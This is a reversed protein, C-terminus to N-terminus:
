RRQFRFLGRSTIIKEMSTKSFRFILMTMIAWILIITMIMIIIAIDKHLPTYRRKAINITKWLWSITGLPSYAVIHFDIEVDDGDLSNMLWKSRYSRCKTTTIKPLHWLAQQFKLYSVNNVKHSRAFPPKYRKVLIQNDDIFM